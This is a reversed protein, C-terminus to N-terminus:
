GRDELQLDAQGDGAGARPSEGGVATWGAGAEFRAQGALYAAELGRDAAWLPVGMEVAVLGTTTWGGRRQLVQLAQKMLADIEYQPEAM